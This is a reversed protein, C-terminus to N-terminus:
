ELSVLSSTWTLGTLSDTTLESNAIPFHVGVIEKLSSYPFSFGRVCPLVCGKVYVIFASFGVMVKEGTFVHRALKVVAYHGEGLTEELDYLGAIQRRQQRFPNSPPQRDGGGIRHRLELRKEMLTRPCLFLIRQTPQYIGNKERDVIGRSICNTRQCNSSANGSSRLM